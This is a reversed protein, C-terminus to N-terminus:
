KPQQQTSCHIAGLGWILNRCDLGVVKRSPFAKKLISLSAVDHGNRFTPVLVTKNAIYFNLYSAPLRRRRFFVPQPMPLPIIRLKKGAQDTMTKLDQFNKKLISYNADRRNNEVACVITTANVFRAIDDIHGSTDDGVIGSDLWLIHRAGLYRTLQQEIQRQSLRPNRNKNLLCQRTTLLTGQGNVDISGGELVMNPKIVPLNFLKGITQPVRDDRRHPWQNGWGNFKWDTIMLRGTTDRVFIPGHDRSWSADTPIRFFRLQGAASKVGARALIARATREAKADNVCVYVNEVTVLAKIIDAYVPPVTKLRGGPWHAACHPWALWTAEHPEWEAPLRYTM